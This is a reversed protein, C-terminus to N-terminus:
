VLIEHIRVILRLKKRLNLIEQKEAEFSPRTFNRSGEKVSKGPEFIDNFFHFEM